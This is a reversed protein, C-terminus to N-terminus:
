TRIWQECYEVDDFIATFMNTTPKDLFCAINRRTYFAKIPELFMVRYM